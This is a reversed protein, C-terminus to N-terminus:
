QAMRDAQNRFFINAIVRLDNKVSSLSRYSRLRYWFQSPRLYFSRYAYRCLEQLRENSLHPYIILRKGLRNISDNNNILIGTDRAQDYFPTGKFPTAVAFMVHHLNLRKLEEITFLIDQETEEHSSGFMINIKPEIG